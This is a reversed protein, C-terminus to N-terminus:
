KSAEHDKSPSLDAKITRYLSRALSVLYGLSFVGLLMGLYFVLTSPYSLMTATMSWVPILLLLGFAYRLYKEIM